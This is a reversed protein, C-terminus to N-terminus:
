DLFFSALDDENRIIDKEEVGVAEALEISAAALTADNASLDFAADVLNNFRAYAEDIKAIIKYYAADVKALLGAMYEDLQKKLQKEKGELKGKAIGWFFNTTVTGIVAGLVPIPIVAQGIAGGIAAIGAELCLIQGQTVVEDLDLEGKQHDVLLSTVGMAASTAAGAFPASLSTLNTLAYISGATVSAKGAAKSSQIGVEKWDEATFDALKKGSKIKAYINTCSSIVFSTAAASGAVKLGEKFSPAANAKVTDEKQKGEKEIDRIRRQNEDILNDEHKQLTNHSAGIQVEDYDSVSKQVVKSFPRGTSKEIDSVKKLISRITKASLNSPNEGRRLAEIMEYQDKPIVYNMTTDRYTNFHNLVSTLSNNTGNIFKSQTKVGNLIYDEAATRGVGKFTAVDSQGRLAAKANRVYVDFYEAIEGHKTRTSGLINEPSSLFSRIKSMHQLAKEFNENQVNKKQLTDRIVAELQKATKAEKWVNFGDVGAAVMQDKWVTM